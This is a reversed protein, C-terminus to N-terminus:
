PSPLASRLFDPWPTKPDLQVYAVGPLGTKVERIYNRLLGPSIRAKVRFMLAQREDATEVTKPTFQAVDAVYSIQAPVVYQPAADLVIRAPAGVAVRGAQNTPLYFTMYVDTLDVMNLVRGGAGLVEGPEAVRYQVRGDRPARLTAEDIEVQIHQAAAQAAEVAAQADVVQAQATDVAATSAAAQAEAVALGATASQFAAEEDDVTQQPVAGGGVLRQSRALRLRAADLQAQNQAIVAIAAVHEYHRQGVLSQATQIGIQAQQLEAQAQRLQAALEFTDMHAVIQGAHVFDGEDALVDQVRGPNQTDIDIEVAEIRGNGSAIGAPLGAPKLTQWAAYGGGALVLIALPLWLRWTVGTKLTDSLKTEVM